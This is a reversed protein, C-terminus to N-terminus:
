DFINNYTYNKYQSSKVNGTWDTNLIQNGGVHKRIVNEKLKDM